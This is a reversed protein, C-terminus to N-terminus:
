EGGEIGNLGDAGDQVANPLDAAAVKFLGVIPTATIVVAAAAVVGVGISAKILNDKTMLGGKDGGEFQANDSAEAL